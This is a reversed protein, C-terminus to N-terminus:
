YQRAIWWVASVARCLSSLKKLMIDPDVPSGFIYRPAFSLFTTNSFPTSAHAVLADFYTCCPKCTPVINTSESNWNRSSFNTLLVRLVVAACSWTRFNSLCICTMLSRILSCWALRGKGLKVLRIFVYGALCTTINRLTEGVLILSDFVYIGLFIM